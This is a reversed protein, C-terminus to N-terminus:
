VLGSQLSLFSRELDRALESNPIYHVASHVRCTSGPFMESYLDTLDDDADSWATEWSIESDEWYIRINTKYNFEDRYTADYYFHNPNFSFTKIANPDFENQNKEEVRRCFDIFDQFQMEMM